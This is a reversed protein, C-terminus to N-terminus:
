LYENTARENTVVFSVLVDHLFYRTTGCEVYVPSVRLETHTHGRVNLLRNLCCLCDHSEKFKLSGSSLRHM